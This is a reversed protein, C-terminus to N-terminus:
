HAIELPKNSEVKLLLTSSAAKSEAIVTITALERFTYLFPTGPVVNIYQVRESRRDFIAVKIPEAQGRGTELPTFSLSQPMDTATFAARENLPMLTTAPRPITVSKGKPLRNLHFAEDAGLAGISFLGIITALASTATRM